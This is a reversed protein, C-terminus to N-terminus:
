ASGGAVAGPAEDHARSGDLWSLIAEATRPPDEAMPIHGLDDFAVLRWDPRQTLLPELTTFPVVRDRRGAIVLTPVAIERVMRGFRRRRALVGTLSRTAELFARQAGDLGARGEALVLGADIIEAPVRGPDVTCFDLAEAALYPYGFRRVRRRYAAEGLGPLLSVGFTLAIKPDVPENLPRPVAPSVLVLRDVSEPRVHTQKLALTGGMSNGILVVPQDATAGLFRDLLLRMAGM